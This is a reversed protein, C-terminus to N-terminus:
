THMRTRTQTDRGERSELPSLTDIYYFQIYMINALRFISKVHHLSM